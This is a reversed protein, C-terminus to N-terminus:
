KKLTSTKGKGNEITKNTREIYRVAEKHERSTDPYFTKTLLADLYRPYANQKKM